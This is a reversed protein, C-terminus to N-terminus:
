GSDGPLLWLIGGALAVVALVGLTAVSGRAAGQRHLSWAGGLLVGALGMLAVPVISSM